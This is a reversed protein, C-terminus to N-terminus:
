ENWVIRMEHLMTANGGATGTHMVGSGGFENMEVDATLDVVHVLGADKQEQNQEKTTEVHATLKGDVVALQITCTSNYCSASISESIASTEGNDYEMLTFDVGNSFKNTREIRLAYGTLTTTDFKIYVDMYQATASGFGQGASKCTDVILEVNMDGYIGKVPTYLMRAGRTSQLLGTGTAGGEGEGYTWASGTPVEWDYEATDLPKYGDLTFFGEKIESQLTTPMNQFDTVIEKCLNDDASIARESVLTVAEGYESGEEKPKIEAILYYGADGSTLKYEYEPENLRSVAVPIKDTGDADSSRYWTISSWDEGEGDLEYSLKVVDTDFEESAMIEMTPNLVSPAPLTEPTVTIYTGTRLGKEGTAYIMGAVSRRGTNVVSYTCTGDANPTLTVYDKLKDEVEWTVADAMGDGSVGRFYSFGYSITDSTGTKATVRLPKVTMTIPYHLAEADIAEVEAKNNLPDWGDTGKLLNYTNYVVKGDSELKYAKLAETGAIDVTNYPNEAAVTIQEGNVTVNAQNCRLANNPEPTWEVTFNESEAKFECDILAVTGGAKTLYQTGEVKSDFECNLFVAGTGSTNYFPKSSYFGFTCDLFVATGPLADDTCEIHCDKFLIRGNTGVFPCANLRSLFNCNQAVIKDGNTIALQAQTIADARKARGLEPKLPYKLDINCYNGMTLNETRTGKGDFYFMTYNGKAGQTQGRNVALVVNSPNSNLGILHLNDCDIVLGYPVDGSTAVRIGEDDPDDIWYVFPAIYVKMPEEETGDTFAAAAEVFDNYVYEYKDAVEDSLTGDVYIVKEGLTIQEGHFSISDGGFIIPENQDLLVYGDVNTMGEEKHELEVVTAPEEQMVAEEQSCACLLLSVTTALMGLKVRKRLLKEEKMFVAWMGMGGRPLSCGREVYFNVYIM